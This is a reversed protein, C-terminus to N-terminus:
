RKLVKIKLLTVLWETEKKSLVIFYIGILCVVLMMLSAMAIFCMNNYKSIFSFIIFSVTSVILLFISLPLVVRRYYYKLSFDTEKDALCVIFIWNVIEIVFMTIFVAYLPANIRLVFYSIILPLSLVFLEVLQYYRLKGVVKFILDLPEHFTRVLLHLLIIRVFIVAYQPVEGLWIKLIDNTYFFVPLAICVYLCFLMKSLFFQINFFEEKKGQVYLQTAQPRIATIANTLILMFAGKVQYAITRAANAVVGGFINLLINIGENVLSFALNGAFNWGAFGLIERFLKKDWKLVYRCEKFQKKCYIANFSRIMLAEIFLLVAYFILKDYDFDNLLFLLGLKLCGDLISMYAYFNMRENAIIVADFPITMISVLATLVSFQFVWCAASLREPYIMLKDEILWLGLSEALVFFIICIVIHIIVSMNFIAQLGQINGRGMECNLFRQIASAFTGRLSSFLAVIGGVIGYLGFDDVGLVQLLVRSTYLSVLMLISLRVYLFFTNKAIRNVNLSSM